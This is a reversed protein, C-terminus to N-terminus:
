SSTYNKPTFPTTLHQNIKSRYYDAVKNRAIVEDKFITFKELLIAAQITDLRGNLGVRINQYKNVGGGHIRVSRMIEALEDDDTFIAGGDGYCGLPKAPFFAQQLFM